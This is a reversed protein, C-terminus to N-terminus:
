KSAVSSRAGEVYRAPDRIFTQRCLESCFYYVAGEYTTMPGTALLGTGCVPDHVEIKLRESPSFTVRGDDLDSLTGDDWNLFEKANMM